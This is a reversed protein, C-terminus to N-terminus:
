HAAPRQWFCRTKRQKQCRDRAIVGAERVYGKSRRESASLRTRRTPRMEAGIIGSTCRGARPANFRNHRLAHGFGIVQLLGQCAHTAQLTEVPIKMALIM